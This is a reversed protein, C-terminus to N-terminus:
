GRLDRVRICRESRLFRWTVSSTSIASRWRSRLIGVAQALLVKDERQQLVLGLFAFADEAFSGQLDQGVSEAEQARRVRGVQGTRVVDVDTRRLDAAEVQVGAVGDLALDSRGLVALAVERQDLDVLDVRSGGSFALFLIRNSFRVGSCGLMGICRSRSMLASSFRVPRMMSMMAGMPLPWRPRITEGGLAPLVTMSCCMAWAM